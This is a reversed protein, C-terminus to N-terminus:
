LSAFGNKLELNYGISNVYTIMTATEPTTTAPDALIM